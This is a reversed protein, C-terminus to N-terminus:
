VYGFNRSKGNNFVELKCSIIVGFPSFLASLTKQDMETPLNKVLINAEFNFDTARKKSLIIQKDDIKENNM